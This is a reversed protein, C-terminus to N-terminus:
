GAAAGVLIFDNGLGQYKAFKVAAACRTAQRTARNPAGVAHQQMQRRQQQQPAAARLTSSAVAVQVVM